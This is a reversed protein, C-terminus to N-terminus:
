ETRCGGSPVNLSQFDQPVGGFAVDSEGEATQVRVRVFVVSAFVGVVLHDFGESTAIGIGNGCGDEVVEVGVFLDSLPGDDSGSLGARRATGALAPRLVVVAAACDDRGLRGDPCSPSRIDDTSASSSGLEVEALYMKVRQYHGTFGDEAVPREHVASATLM